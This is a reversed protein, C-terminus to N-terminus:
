GDSIENFLGVLSPDLSDEKILSEIDKISTHAEVWTPPGLQVFMDKHAVSDGRSRSINSWFRQGQDIQKMDVNQAVQTIDSPTFEFGHSQAIEAVIEPNMQVLAAHLQGQLGSDERVQAFFQAVQEDPMNESQPM